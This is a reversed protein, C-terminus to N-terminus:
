IIEEEEEMAGGGPPLSVQGFYPDDEKSKNSINSATGYGSSTKLWHSVKETSELKQDNDPESSAITHLFFFLYTLAYCFQNLCFNSACLNMSKNVQQLITSSDGSPRSWACREEAGSERWCNGGDAWLDLDQMMKVTEKLVLAAGSSTTKMSWESKKQMLGRLARGLKVWQNPFM